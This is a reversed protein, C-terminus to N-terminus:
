KRSDMASKDCSLFLSMLYEGASLVDLAARLVLHITVQKISVETSGEGFRLFLSLLNLFTLYCAWLWLAFQCLQSMFGLTQSM